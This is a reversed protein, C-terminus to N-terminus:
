ADADMRDLVGRLQRINAEAEGDGAGGVVREMLDLLAAWSTLM